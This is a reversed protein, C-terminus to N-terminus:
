RPSLSVPLLPNRQRNHNLAQVLGAIIRQYRRPLQRISASPLRGAPGSEPGPLRGAQRGKQRGPGRRSRGERHCRMVLSRAPCSIISPADKLSKIICKRCKCFIFETRFTLNVFFVFFGRWSCSVLGFRKNERDPRLGYGGNFKLYTDTLLLLINM